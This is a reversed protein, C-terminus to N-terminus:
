PCVFTKEAHARATFTTSTVSGCGYAYLTVAYDGRRITYDKEQGKPIFLVYTAPGTLVLTLNGTTDNEFTVKVLRAVTGLDVTQPVNEALAPGSGCAPQILRYNKSLDLTESVNIGCVFVSYTYEGRLPTFVETSNAPISLYYFATGSLWIKLPQDTRNEVTLRVLDGAQLSTALFGGAPAPAAAALLTSALVLILVLSRLTLKSHM